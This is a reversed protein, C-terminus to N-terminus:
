EEEHYHEAYCQDCLNIQTGDDNLFTDTAQELECHQCDM